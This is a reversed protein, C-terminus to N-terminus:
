AKFKGFMTVLSRHRETVYRILLAQAIPLLNQGRLHRIRQLAVHNLNVELSPPNDRQGEWKRSMHILSNINILNKLEEKFSERELHTLMAYIRRDEESLGLRFRDSPPADADIKTKELIVVAQHDEAKKYAEKHVECLLPALTDFHSRIWITTQHRGCYCTRCRSSTFLSIIQTITPKVLCDWLEEVLESNEM